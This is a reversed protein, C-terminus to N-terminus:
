IKQKRKNRKTQRRNEKRTKRKKGGMIQLTGFALLLTDILTEVTSLKDSQEPATEDTVTDPLLASIFVSFEKLINFKNKLKKAM